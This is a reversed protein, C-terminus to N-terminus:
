QEKTNRGHQKMRGKSYRERNEMPIRNWYL